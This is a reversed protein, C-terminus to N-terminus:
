REEQEEGEEGNWTRRLKDEMGEGMEPQSCQLTGCQAQLSVGAAL